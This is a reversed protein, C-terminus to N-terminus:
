WGQSRYAPSDRRHAQNPFYGGGRERCEWAAGARLPWARLGARVPQGGEHKLRHCWPARWAGAAAADEPHLAQALEGRYAAAHSFDVSVAEVRPCNQRVFDERGVAGGALARWRAARDRGGQHGPRRLAEGRGSWPRLGALYRAPWPPPRRRSGDAGRNREEPVPGVSV